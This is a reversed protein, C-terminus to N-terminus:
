ILLLNYNFNFFLKDHSNFFKLDFSIQNKRIIEKSKFSIIMMLYKKKEIM